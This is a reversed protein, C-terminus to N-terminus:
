RNGNLIEYQLISLVALAATETRLIRKGLSLPLFGAAEARKQESTSWGGEPGILVTGGTKEGSVAKQIGTQCSLAADQESCIFHFDNESPESLFVELSQPADITPVNWRCSQQAAELAIKGWRENQHKIRKMDPRVVTRASILPTLRSVGLETAKQVLWDMKEKKILSVALRITPFNDPPPLTESEITLAIPKPHSAIVRAEYRKPHEDVLYILEGVKLRLVNRLHHQLATDLHVQNQLIQNSRIFYVPM